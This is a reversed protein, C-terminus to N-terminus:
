KTLVMKKSDILSGDIYLSYVYTGATLHATQLSIQGNGMATIPVTKINRGNIDTVTISANGSTQPIYYNIHTSQNFPNPANQFLKASNLPVASTNALGLSQEIKALRDNLQAVMATLSDKLETVVSVLSDNKGSLEQVAKVLPVVFDTYNLGYTDKSNKPKYLGSFNYGAKNSASEVDQAVFGTYLIKEKQAIAAEESKSFRLPLTENSGQM